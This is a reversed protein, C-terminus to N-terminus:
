MYSSLLKRSLPCAVLIIEADEDGIAALRHPLRADFHAADGPKLEHQEAEVTLCLTGSLVYLWEEGDHHYLDDGSRDLPVTIRIPHINSERDGNMLPRYYLGNGQRLPDSGARVIGCMGSEQEGSFLDNIALGYATAISLMAAISPQRDGEELRSLYSKSLGSRSALEDLTWGRDVRLTRIRAGLEAMEARVRDEILTAM